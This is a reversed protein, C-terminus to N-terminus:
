GKLKDGWGIDVGDAGDSQRRVRGEAWVVGDARHIKIIQRINDKRQRKDKQFNDQM